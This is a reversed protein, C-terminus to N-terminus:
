TCYINNMNWCCQKLLAMVIYIVLRARCWRLPSFIVVPIALVALRAVNQNLPTKETKSKWHRHYSLLAWYYYTIFLSLHHLIHHQFERVDVGHSIVTIHNSMILHISFLQQWSTHSNKPNLIFEAASKKGFDSGVLALNKKNFFRIKLAGFSYIALM